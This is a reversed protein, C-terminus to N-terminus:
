RKSESVTSKRKAWITSVLWLIATSPSVRDREAAEMLKARLAQQARPDGVELPLSNTQGCTCTSLAEMEIGPGEFAVAGMLVTGNVYSQLGPWVCGCSSCQRPFARECGVQLGDAFASLDAELAEPLEVM